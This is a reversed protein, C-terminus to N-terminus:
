LFLHRYRTTTTLSLPGLIGLDSLTPRPPPPGRWLFPTHLPAKAHEARAIYTMKVEKAPLDFNVVLPIQEVVEHLGVASQTVLITKKGAKLLAHMHIATREADSGGTGEHVALVTVKELQQHM